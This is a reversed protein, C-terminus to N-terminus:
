HFVYRADRAIEEDALASRAQRVRGPRRLRLGRSATWRQAFEDVAPVYLARDWDIAVGTEDRYAVMTVPRRLYWPMTHDIDVAYIPADAPPRPEISAILKAASFRESITGHGIVALQTALIGGSRACLHFDEEVVWCDLFQLRSRAQPPSGPCTRRMPPAAVPFSVVAAIGLAAVVAAQVLLLKRSGGGSRRSALVAMAPSPCIYAPLKSSSASFLLVVVAWLALFFDADFPRARSRIAARWWAALVPLLLPAFGLALM